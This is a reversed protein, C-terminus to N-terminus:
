ISLRMRRRGTLSDECYKFTAEVAIKIGIRDLWNEPWASVPENGYLRCTRWTEVLVSTTPKEPIGTQASHTGLITYKGNEDIAAAPRTLALAVAAALILTKMWNMGFFGYAFILVAIVSGYRTIM